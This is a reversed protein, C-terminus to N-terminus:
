RLAGALPTRRGPSLIVAMLPVAIAFQDSATRTISAEAWFCIVRDTRRSPLGTCSLM